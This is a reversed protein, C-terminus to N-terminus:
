EFKNIIAYVATWNYESYVGGNWKVLFDIYDDKELHFIDISCQTSDLYSIVTDNFIISDNVTIYCLVNVGRSDAGRFTSTLHYYGAKPSKWRVVPFGNTNNKAWLLPGSQISPGGHGWNGFYWGSSGWRVTMLDFGPGEPGWKRGYSWVNNPNNQSSYEISMNWTDSFDLLSLPINCQTTEGAIVNIEVSAHKYGTKIATVVYRGSNVDLISYNGNSDSFTSYTTPQTQISAYDIPSETNM